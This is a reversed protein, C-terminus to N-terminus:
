DDKPAEKPPPPTFLSTDLDTIGQDDDLDNLADFLTDVPITGLDGVSRARVALDGSTMEKEGVVCMIPVRQQEANRIQKNLRDKGSDVECRIGRKKAAKRPTLLAM